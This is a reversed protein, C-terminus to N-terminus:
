LLQRRLLDLAAQTSFWKVMTRSAPWFLKRHTDGNAGSVAIHVTGVPKEDSGGTPGAIGTIGVGWTSGFRERVGRALATAVAESVEGNARILEPDVGALSTKAAATYCIAGGLYYASSGAVDTIRSGLLGGTCSEATSLTEGRKLLLAGVVSELTDDDFGFLRHGFINTIESERTAIDDLSEGGLHVEIQGGSALITVLEGPHRVYYPKLKEEVGSETVGAIKLVRRHRRRGGSVSELWPTFYTALMWELEHPVGPFVWVQKGAAEIHFGPATGRQNRLTTQGPFVNAQKRNVDPMRLSREAFRAAIWQAISEDIEMTLGFAECLAERTLDDETPGLGGTIILIEATASRIEAVLDELRDGVISKRVLPIGFSELAATIKLSNTDVRTPGLMESGVAIIAAHLTM